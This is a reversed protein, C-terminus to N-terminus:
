TKPPNKPRQVFFYILAGIIGTLVIVLIWILKTNGESPTRSIADILMWIWFALAALAVLGFIASFVCGAAGMAMDPQVEM